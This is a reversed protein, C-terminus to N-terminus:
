LRLLCRVDSTGLLILSFEPFCISCLNTCDSNAVWGSRIGVARVEWGEEDIGLSDLIKQLDQCWCWRRDQQCPPCQLSGSVLTLLMDMIETYRRPGSVTKSLPRCQGVTVVDG